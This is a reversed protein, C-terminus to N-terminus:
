RREHLDWPARAAEILADGRGLGIDALMRDDMEGLLRRTRRARVMETLFAWAQRIATRGTGHSVFHFDTLTARVAM